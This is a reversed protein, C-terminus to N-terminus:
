GGESPGTQEEVGRLETGVKALSQEEEELVEARAKELRVMFNM